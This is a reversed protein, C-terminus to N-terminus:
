QFQDVNALTVTYIFTAWNKQSVTYLIELVIKYGM